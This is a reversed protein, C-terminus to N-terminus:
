AASAALSSHREPRFGRGLAERLEEGDAEAGYIEMAKEMSVDEPSGDFVVRGAQMGVIRDCYNRATELHHLNCIVTIGAERNIRRLADM